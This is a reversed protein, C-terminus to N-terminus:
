HWFLVIKTDPPDEKFSVPAARPYPMWTDQFLELEALQKATTFQLPSGYGDKTRWGSPTQVEIGEPVDGVVTAKVQDHMHYNRLLEVASTKWRPAEEDQVVLLKLDVGM